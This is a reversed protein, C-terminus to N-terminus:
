QKSTKELMWFSGADKFCTVEKEMKLVLLTAEEFDKSEGEEGGGEDEGRGEREPRVFGETESRKGEEQLSGQSKEPAVLIYVLCVGGRLIRSKM